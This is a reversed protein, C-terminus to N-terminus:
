RRSDVRRCGPVSDPRRTIKEDHNAESEIRSVRWGGICRNQQSHRFFRVAPTGIFRGILGFSRCHPVELRFDSSPSQKYRDHRTEIACAHTKVQPDQFNDHEFNGSSNVFLEEARPQEILEQLPIV